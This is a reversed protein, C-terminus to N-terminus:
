QSSVCNKGLRKGRYLAKDALQIADDPPIKGGESVGFTMTLRISGNKCRFPTRKILSRIKGAVEVSHRLSTEPLLLLFEEGGWRSIIDQKRLLKELRRSVRILIEDGCSHGYRDNVKKFDDIDAMILGYSRGTRSSRNQEIELSRMMARRNALGTLSDAKSLKEVRSYADKLERNIKSRFRANRYVLVLSIGAFVLGAATGAIMRRQIQKETRLQEIERERAETEYRIRLIDLERVRKESLLDERLDQSALSTELAKEFEKRGRYVLTKEKLISSSSKRDELQEALQEAHESLTLAEDFNERIRELELLKLTASLIGRKRGLKVEISMSRRFHDEAKEHEDRAMHISGLSNLALSTLYSDGNTQAEELTQTYVTLAEDLQGRSNLINGTNYLIGPIGATFGERIYITHCRRYYDLSADLDGSDTLVNGITAMLHGLNVRADQSDDTEASQEFVTLADLYYKLSLNLNNLYYQVDGLRRLCRGQQYLDDLLNFVDLAASYRQLAASYEEGTRAADGLGFLATAMGRHYDLKGALELARSSSKKAMDRDTESQIAAQENLLDVRERGDAKKLQEELPIAELKM